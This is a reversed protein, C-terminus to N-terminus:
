RSVPCMTVLISAICPRVQKLFWASMMYRSQNMLQPVTPGGTLGLHAEAARMRFVLKEDKFKHEDVVHHLVDRERLKEGLQAAEERTHCRGSTVLRAHDRFFSLVFGVTGNLVLM